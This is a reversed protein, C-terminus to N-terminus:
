DIAFLAENISQNIKINKLEIDTYDGNKEVIEVKDVLARQRNIHLVIQQFMMKMEKRKPILTAIWEDSRQAISVSFDDEDTLCKGVVSNMMIRAIEKFVKSQNVDIVDNRNNNKLLVKTGNLVFTYTYPTTYEWRLKDSQKYYMKGKSVMECALMQLHKTQVFDCQMSKMQAAAKNVEAKVKAEDASQATAHFALFTVIILSIIKKM